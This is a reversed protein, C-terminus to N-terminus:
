PVRGKGKIKVRNSTGVTIGGLETYTYVRVFYNLIYYDLLIHVSTVWMIYVEVKGQLSCCKESM